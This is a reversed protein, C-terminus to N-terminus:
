GRLAQAIDQITPNIGAQEARSILVDGMALLDLKNQETFAPVLNDQVLMDLVQTFMALRKSNSLDFTEFMALAEVTARCALTPSDKIAMWLLNEVMLYERIDHASVKGKAPIDQRNLVALIAGDNGEAILPALEAALPGTTFEDHLTM